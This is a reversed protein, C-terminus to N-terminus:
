KQAMWSRLFLDMYFEPVVFWFHNGETDRLRGRVNQNLTLYPFGGGVCIYCDKLDSVKCAKTGKSSLRVSWYAPPPFYEWDEFQGSAYVVMDGDGKQHIHIGAAGNHIARIIEVKTAADARKQIGDLEDRADTLSKDRLAAIVLPLLDSIIITTIIIIHRDNIRLIAKYHPFTNRAKSHLESCPSYLSHAFSIQIGVIGSTPKKGKQLERFFRSAHDKL